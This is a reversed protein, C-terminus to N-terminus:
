RSYYAADDHSLEESTDLEPRYGSSLPTSVRAPLRKGRKKLYSEVNEVAAKVYQTSGFAWVKTGTELEVQRMSGGLYISPPGISEEKLEWYKGIEDRLVREANESIVLCDDTYLLIYEYYKRGDARTAERFWVDPDALCSEFGLADRM